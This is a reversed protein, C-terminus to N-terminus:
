TRCPFPLGCTLSQGPLDVMDMSPVGSSHMEIVIEQEGEIGMNSEDIALMQQRVRRIIEESDTSEFKDCQCNQNYVSGHSDTCPPISLIYLPRSFSHLNSHRLKLLVPQRTMTVEDERPFVPAMTLREITSSKGSKEDGIVVVRPLEFKFADDSVTQQFNHQEAGQASALWVATQANISNIKEFVQGFKLHSILGVFEEVGPSCTRTLDPPSTAAAAAAAAPIDDRESSDAHDVLEFSADTSPLSLQTLHRVDFSSAPSLFSPQSVDGAAATPSSPSSKSKTKPM